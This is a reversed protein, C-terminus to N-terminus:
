SVYCYYVRNKNYIKQLNDYMMSLHLLLVSKREEDPLNVSRVTRNRDDHGFWWSPLFFNPTYPHQEIGERNLRSITIDIKRLVEDLTKGNLDVDTNWYLLDEFNGTYDEFVDVYRSYNGRETLKGSKGYNEISTINIEPPIFHKQPVIYVLRVM